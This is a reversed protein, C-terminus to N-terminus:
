RGARQFLSVEQILSVSLLCIPSLIVTKGPDYSVIAHIQGFGTGNVVMFTEGGGAAGVPLTVKTSGAASSAVPGLYQGGGNGDDTRLSIASLPRLPARFEASAQPKCTMAERDGSYHMDATNHACWLKGTSSPYIAGGGLVSGTIENHEVIGQQTGGLAFAVDANHVLNRVISIHHPAPNHTAQPLPNNKSDLPFYPIEASKLCWQTCTLDNDSIEVNSAGQLFITAGINNGGATWNTIRSAHGDLAAKTAEDREGIAPPRGGNMGGGGGPLINQYGTCFYPLQRILTHRLKFGSSEAVWIVCNSFHTM